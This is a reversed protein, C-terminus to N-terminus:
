HKGKQELMYERQIDYTKEVVELKQEFTLHRYKLHGYMQEVVKNRTELYSLPHIYM